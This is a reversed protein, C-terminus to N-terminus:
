MLLSVQFSTGGRGGGWGQGMIHLYLLFTATQLGPLASEGSVSGAAGQDQVERSGSSYSFLNETTSAM